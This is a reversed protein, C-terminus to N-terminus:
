GEDIIEAAIMAARRVYKRCIKKIQKLDQECESLEFCNTSHFARRFRTYFERTKQYAIEKQAKDLKKRGFKLGLAAIAGTVTGCTSRSMGFGGGFGTILQVPAAKGAAETVAKFVSEACNWGENFFQVARDGVASFRKRQKKM